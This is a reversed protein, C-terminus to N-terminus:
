GIVFNDETSVSANCICPEFYKTSLLSGSAPQLGYVLTRYSQVILIDSRKILTYRDKMVM